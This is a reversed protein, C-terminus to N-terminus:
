CSLLCDCIINSEARWLGLIVRVKESKVIRCELFLYLRHLCLRIVPLATVAESDQGKASDMEYLQEQKKFFTIATINNSAVIVIEIAM